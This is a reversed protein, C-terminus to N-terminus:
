VSFVTPYAALNTNFDVIKFMAQEAKLEFTFAGRVARIEYSGSVPLVKTQWNQNKYPFIKMMDLDVGYIVGDPCRRSVGLFYTGTEFEVQEWVLNLRKETLGVNTGRLVDLMRNVIQKTKRSMLLVQPMNEGATDWIEGLKEEIDYIGLKAGNKDKINTVIFQDLGGMLSPRKDTVPTSDALGASRKGHFLTKEMLLKMDLMKRKIHTVIQDGEGFELNPEWRAFEDYQLSTAFRQPYNYALDGFQISGRPHDANQPEAVGIIEIVCADDHAFNSTGQARVVTLVDGSKATVWAIEEANDSADELFKIVHWVQFRVGQGSEVTVTTTSDNIGGELVASHPLQYSQGWEHLFHVVPGGEEISSLLPTTYPALAKVWDSIYRTRLTEPFTGDTQGTTYTNHAPAYVAPGAM